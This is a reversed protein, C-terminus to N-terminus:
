HFNESNNRFGPNQPRSKEFHQILSLIKVESKLKTYRLVISWRFKFNNNNNNNNNNTRESCTKLESNQFNLIQFNRFSEGM